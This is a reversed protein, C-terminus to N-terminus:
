RGNAGSIFSGIILLAIAAVACVAIVLVAWRLAAFAVAGFGSSSRESGPMSVATLGVDTPSQSRACTAEVQKEDVLVM